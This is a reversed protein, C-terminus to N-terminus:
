GLKIKVISMAEFDSGSKIIPIKNVVKMLSHHDHGGLILDIQPVKAALEEDAPRRCHTLAIIL